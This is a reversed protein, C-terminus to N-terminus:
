NIFQSLSKPDTGLDLGLERLYSHVLEAEAKTIGTVEMLEKKTVQMLHQLQRPSVKFGKELKGQLYKPLELVGIGRTIHMAIRMTDTLDSTADIKKAM